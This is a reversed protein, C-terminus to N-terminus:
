DESKWTLEIENEPTYLTLELNAGNLPKIADRVTAFSERARDRWSSVPRENIVAGNYTLKMTYM